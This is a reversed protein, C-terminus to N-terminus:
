RANADDRDFTFQSLDQRYPAFFDKLENLTRAQTATARAKSDRSKLYEIFDLVEAQQLEPLDLFQETIRDAANM